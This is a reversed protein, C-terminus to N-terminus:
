APAPVETRSADSVDVVVILTNDDRIALAYSTNIFVDDYEPHRQIEELM